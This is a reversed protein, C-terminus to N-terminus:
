NSIKLLKRYGSIPDSTAIIQFVSAKRKEDLVTFLTGCNYWCMVGRVAMEATTAETKYEKGNVIITYKEM